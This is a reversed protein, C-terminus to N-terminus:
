ELQQAAPFSRRIAFTSPLGRIVLLDKFMMASDWVVNLKSGEVEHWEVDVEVVRVGKYKALLLLEVDFIWHYIHQHPFVLQASPRSFLKFGCQTDRIHGVGIILLITHLTYMLINRLLSRKVVAETKVLHARSGVAIAGVRGDEYWDSSPIAKADGKTTIIPEEAEVVDLRAWLKDLDEFRSAGDADVMLLRKGRAHMMGHNVAGGKGKNNALTIVRIESGHSAYYQSSLAISLKTTEDTSGDDVILIEYTRRPCGSSASSATRQLKPNSFTKALHSVTTQLMTPLRATENFAPIIVSLDVSAPDSLVPLPQPTTPHAASRYHRESLVTHVRPPSLLILSCYLFVFVSAILALVCYIILTQHDLPGLILLNDSAYGQFSFPGPTTTMTTHITSSAM